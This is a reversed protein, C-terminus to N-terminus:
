FDSYGRHLHKVMIVMDHLSGHPDRAYDPLTACKFFDFKQCAEVAADEPGVVLDTRLLALGKDMALQVLDLLLWTGLRQQRFQPAVIIRFRGVHQSCGFGRLHLSGHGVIKDDCCAVVSEVLGLGINSFWKELVQPEKVNYRMYWRDQEPIAMYFNRLAEAEDAKLPRIVVERCDKLVCEKPYRV